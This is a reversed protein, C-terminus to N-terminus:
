NHYQNPSVSPFLIQMFISKAEQPVNKGGNCVCIKTEEMLITQRTLVIKPWVLLQYQQLKLSLGQCHIHLLDQKSSAPSQLSM